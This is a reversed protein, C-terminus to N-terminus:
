VHAVQGIQYPSRKAQQYTAPTKLGLVVYFGKTGLPYSQVRGFHVWWSRRIDTISPIPPRLGWLGLLIAVFGFVFVLARLLNWDENAPPIAILMALFGGVVAIAFIEARRAWDM